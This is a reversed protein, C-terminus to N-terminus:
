NTCGYPVHQQAYIKAMLPRGKLSFYAHLYHKEAALYRIGLLLLPRDKTGIRTLHSYKPEILWQCKHDMLGWGQATKLLLFGNQLELFAEFPGKPPAKSYSQLWWLEKKQVLYHRKNWYQLKQHELPIIQSLTNSLVGVKKGDRVMWSTQGFRTPLGSYDAPLYAQTPMHFGGFKDGIQLLISGNEDVQSVTEYMLPVQLHGNRDMIGKKKPHKAVMLYNKGLPAIQTYASRSIVVGQSNMISFDKTKEDVLKYFASQQGVHEPDSLIFGYVKTSIPLAQPAKKPLFLWKKGHLRGVAVNRGVLELSEFGFLLSDEAFPMRKTGPLRPLSLNSGKKANKHALLGYDSEKLKLIAWYDNFDIQLADKNIRSLEHFFSVQDEKEVLWYNHWREPPEQSTFLPQLTSDSLTYPENQGNQGSEESLLYKEELIQVEKYSNFSLSRGKQVSEVLSAPLSVRNTSTGDEFVLFPGSQYINFYSFPVLIRGLLSSLGVKTGRKLRLLGCPLRTIAEYEPPLLQGAALHWLGYRGGVQIALIDDSISRIAEIEGRLLLRGSRDRLEDAGNHHLLLHSSQIGECQYRVSLSDYAQSLQKGDNARVLIYGKLQTQHIPILPIPAKSANHLSDTHEPFLSLYSKEHRRSHWRRDLSALLQLAKKTHVSKPYARLFALFDRPQAQLTFLQLISYEIARRYESHPYKILFDRYDQLTPRLNLAEFQLKEYRKSAKKYQLAQPYTQMFHEYAELQEAKKAALFALSDRQEEAKKYQLAMPHHELFLSYADVDNSIVAQTYAQADIQAQLQKYLRRDFGYKKHEELGSADLHTWQRLAKQLYWHATDIHYDSFAATSYLRAYAYYASPNLTDSAIVKKIIRESKAYQGEELARLARRIKSPHYSCLLSLLLVLVIQQSVVQFLKMFLKM